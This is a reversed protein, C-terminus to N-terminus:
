APLLPLFLGNVFYGGAHLALFDDIDGRGRLRHSRDAGVTFHEDPAVRQLAFVLNRLKRALRNLNVATAMMVGRQKFVAVHDTPAVVGIALRRNGRRDFLRLNLIDVDAIHLVVGHGGFALHKGPTQLAEHEAGVIQAAIHQGADDVAAAHGHQDPAIETIMAVIM